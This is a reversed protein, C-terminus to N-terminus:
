MRYRDDKIHTGYTKPMNEHLYLDRHALERQASLVLDRILRFLDRFIVM